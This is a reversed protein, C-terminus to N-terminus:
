VHVQGSKKGFHGSKKEFSWKEEWKSGSKKEGSQSSFHGQSSFHILAPFILPDSLIALIQKILWYISMIIM